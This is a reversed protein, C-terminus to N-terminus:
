TGNNLNVNFSFNALSAAMGNTTSLKFTLSSLDASFSGVNLTTKRVFMPNSRLNGAVLSLSDLVESSNAKSTIMTRATESPVVGTFMKVSIEKNTKGTTNIENTTRMKVILQTTEDKPLEIQNSGLNYTFYIKTTGSVPSTYNGLLNDNKDYLAFQAGM